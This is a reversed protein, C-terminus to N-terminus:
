RAGDAGTRRRNFGLAFVSAAAALLMLVGPSNGSRHTEDNGVDTPPLTIRPTAVSGVHAHIFECAFSSPGFAQWPPFWVASTGDVEWEPNDSQAVCEVAILAYGERPVDTIVVRTVGEYDIFWSAPESGNSTPDASVVEATGFEGAFEWEGDFVHRDDLTAPDGDEDVFSLAKIFAESEDFPTPAEIPTPSPTPTPTATPEPSPNPTPSPTPDAEAAVVVQAFTGALALGMVMAALSRGVRSM